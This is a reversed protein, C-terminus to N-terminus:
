ATKSTAQKNLETKLQGEMHGLVMKDIAGMNFSNDNKALGIAAISFALLGTQWTLHSGAAIYQQVGVLGGMLIGLVSSIPGSTVNNTM